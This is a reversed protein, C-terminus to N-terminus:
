VMDPYVNDITKNTEESINKHYRMFVDYITNIRIKFTREDVKDPYNLTVNIGNLVFGKNDEMFAGEIM